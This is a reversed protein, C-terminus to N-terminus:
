EVLRIRQHVGEGRREVLGEQELRVLHSEIIQMGPFFQIVKNGYMKESLERFSMEGERLIKVLRNGTKLLHRRTKELASFPDKIIDGHAPLIVRLKLSALKELSELFGLVGGSSPSYWAVIAGVVDSSLLVGDDERYLSIQGPAHGPTHIVRYSRGGLSFVEGGEIVRSIRASSMPCLGQFYHLINFNELGMQVIVEEGLYRRPLDIDFAENLLQPDEALPKDIGSIWVRPSTEEQIFGMAGMHDPHAHSLIITHVDELTLGESKLFSLLDRYSEERGCGVDFLIGGEEDRFLYINCSAPWRAERNICASIDEMVKM